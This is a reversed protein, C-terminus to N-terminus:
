IFLNLVNDCLLTIDKQVEDKPKKKYKRESIVKIRKKNETYKFLFSVGTDKITINKKYVDITGPNMDFKISSKPIKQSNILTYGKNYYIRIYDSEVNSLQDENFYRVKTIEQITWEGKYKHICDKNDILHENFRQKISCTTLGIYHVNHTINTTLYIYGIKGTKIVINTAKSSEKAKYFM